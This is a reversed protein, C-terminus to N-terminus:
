LALLHLYRSEWYRKSTPESNRIIKILLDKASDCYAKEGKGARIYAVALDQYVDPLKPYKQAVERNLANKDTFLQLKDAVEKLAAVAGLWNGTAGASFAIARQ